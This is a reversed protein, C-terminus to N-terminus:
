QDATMFPLNPEVDEVRELAAQVFRHLDMRERDIDARADALRSLCTRMRAVSHMILVVTVVALIILRYLDLELLGIGAFALLIVLIEPGV